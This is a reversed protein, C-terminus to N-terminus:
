PLEPLHRPRRFVGRKVKGSGKCLDCKVRDLLSLWARFRHFRLLIFGRGKCKSCAQIASEEYRKTTVMTTDM